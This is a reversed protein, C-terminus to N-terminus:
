EYIENHCSYCKYNSVKNNCSDVVDHSGDEKLVCRIIESTTFKFVPSGCHICRIEVTDDKSHISNLMSIPISIGRGNNLQEWEKVSCKILDYDKKLEKFNEKNFNTLIKFM